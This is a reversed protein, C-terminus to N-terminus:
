HTGKTPRTSSLHTKIAEQVKWSLRAAWGNQEWQDVEQLVLSFKRMKKMLLNKTENSEGRGLKEILNFM